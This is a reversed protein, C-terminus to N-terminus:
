LMQVNRSCRKKETHGAQMIPWAFQQAMGQSSHWARNAWEPQWVGPPQRHVHLSADGARLPQPSWANGQESRSRRTQKNTQKDTQKNPLGEWKMIQWSWQLVGISIAESRHDPYLSPSCGWCTQHHCLAPILSQYVLLSHQWEALGPCAPSNPLPSASSTWCHCTYLEVGPSFYGCVDICTKPQGEPFSSQLPPGLHRPPCYTPWSGATCGQHPWM